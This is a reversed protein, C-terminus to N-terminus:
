GAMPTPAPLSAAYLVRDVINAADAHGHNRLLDTLWRALQNPAAYAYAPGSQLAQLLPTLRLTIVDALQQELAAITQVPASQRFAQVLRQHASSIEQAIPGLIPAFFTADYPSPIM